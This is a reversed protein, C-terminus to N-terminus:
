MVNLREPTKPYARLSASRRGDGPVRSYLWWTLFRGIAHEAHEAHM